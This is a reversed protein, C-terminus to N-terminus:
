VLALLLVGVGVALLSGLIPKDKRFNNQFFYSIGTLLAGLGLFSAGHGLIARIVGLGVLGIGLWLTANNKIDVKQEKRAPNDAKKYFYLLTVFPIVLLSLLHVGISLGIMYAIFVLWRDAYKHHTVYWRMAAWVVLGTFFGSMAYVEGEVASFWVSTAFTTSLGAVTGAGLIALIDGMETPLTKNDKMIALRALITTTWFIFLVLFATCIGSLMNLAYAINAPNSETDTFTEAIVSFFRGIMLFLPAGPPHVVELKHAASVFEGCDWLSGTPEATLMYVITAIAFVAWGTINNLRKFNM